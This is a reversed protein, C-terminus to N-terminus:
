VGLAFAFNYRVTMSRVIRARVNQMSIPPNVSLLQAGQMRMPRARAAHVIIRRHELVVRERWCRM